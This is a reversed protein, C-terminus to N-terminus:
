ENELKRALESFAQFEPDDDALGRRPTAPSGDARLIRASADPGYYHARYFHAAEREKGLALLSRAYPLFAEEDGRECIEKLVAVAEGYRGLECALSGYLLRLKHDPHAAVPDALLEYAAEVDGERRMLEAKRELLPTKEGVREIAYRLGELAGEASRTAMADVLIVYLRLEEESIEGAASGHKGSNAEDGSWEYYAALLSHRVIPPVPLPTVEVTRQQGFREVVLSVADRRTRFATWDRCVTRWSVGNASAITDGPRIRAQEAAGGEVIRHVYGSDLVDFGIEFLDEGALLARATDGLRRAEDEPVVALRIESVAGPGSRLRVTVHDWQAPLEITDGVPEFGAARRVHTILAGPAFDTMEPRVFGFLWGSVQLGSEGDRELPRLELGLRAAPARYAARDTVPEMEEWTQPFTDGRLLKYAFVTRLAGGRYAVTLFGATDSFAMATVDPRPNPLEGLVEFTAGDLFVVRGDRGAAALLPGDFGNPAAALHVIPGDLPKVERLPRQSRTDVALLRGDESATWLKEGAADFAVGRIPGAHLHLGWRAGTDDPDGTDDLAIVEFAGSEDGYALRAGDSTFALASVRPGEGRLPPLARGSEIEYLHVGGSNDAVALLAGGPAVVLHRIPRDLAGQAPFSPHVESGGRAFRRVVGSSGGLFLWKEEVLAATFIDGEVPLELPELDLRPWTLGCTFGDAGFLMAHGFGSHTAIAHISECDLAAETEVPLQWYYSDQEPRIKEDDKSRPSESHITAVMGPTPRGSVDGSPKAHVREGRVDSVVWTGEIPVLGEGPVEFGIQVRDDLNPLLDGELEIEM